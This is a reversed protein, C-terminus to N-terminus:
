LCFCAVILFLTFRRGQASANSLSQEIPRPLDRAKAYRDAVCIESTHAAYIRSGLTATIQQHRRGAPYRVDDHSSQSRADIEGGEDGDVDDSEEGEKAENEQQDRDLILRVDDRM